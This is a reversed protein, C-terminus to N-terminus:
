RIQFQTVDLTSSPNYYILKGIFVLIELSGLFQFSQDCPNGFDMWVQLSSGLPIFSFGHSLKRGFCSFCFENQERQTQSLIQFGSMFQNMYFRTHVLPRQLICDYTPLLAPPDDLSFRLETKM